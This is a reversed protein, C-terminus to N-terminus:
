VTISKAEVEDINTFSYLGVGVTGIISATLLTEMKNM